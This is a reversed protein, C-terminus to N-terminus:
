KRDEIVFRGPTRRGPRCLSLGTALWRHDGTCTAIISLISDGPEGLVLWPGAVYVMGASAFWGISRGLSQVVKGTQESDHLRSMMTRLLSSALHSVIKQFIWSIMLLSAIALWQWRELGFIESRMATPMLNQLWPSAEAQLAATTEGGSDQALILVPQLLLLSLWILLPLTSTCKM